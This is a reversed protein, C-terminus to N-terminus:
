GECIEDLLLFYKAMESQYDNNELMIQRGARGMTNSEELSNKLEVIKKSLDEHNGVSFLIGTKSPIVWKGNEGFDSVIVPVCCAMAEAVSTALGADSTSTSVYADVTNLTHLLEEKIYKGIFLISQALGLQKVLAELEHRLPGDGAIILKCVKEKECVRQWARILTEIGYVRELNRNSLVVFEAGFLFDSLKQSLDVRGVSAFYEPLEPLDYKNFYECDVGFNVFRLQEKTAGLEYLKSEVHGGDHTIIKAKSIVLKILVRKFVNKSSILVDTGWATLILPRSMFWAALGYVGIYHGHCVEIQRKNVLARGHVIARLFRVIMPGKSFEYYGLGDPVSCGSSHLSIWHCNDGNERQATIWKESHQSGGDAFFLIDRSTKM